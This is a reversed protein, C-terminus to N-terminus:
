ERVFDLCLRLLAQELRGDSFSEPAHRMADKIVKDCSLTMVHAVRPPDPVQQRALMAQTAMAMRKLEVRNIADRDASPMSALTPILGAFVSVVPRVVSLIAEDLTERPPAPAPAAARAPPEQPLRSMAPRPEAAPKPSTAPTRFLTSAPPPAPSPARSATPTPPPASTRSPTSASAPTSSRFLTSALPPAPARSSAPATASARSATSAPPVAPMTRRTTPAQGPQAPSTSRPAPSRQLEARQRRAMAEALIADKNRFCSLLKGLSVGARSAIRISTIAEPGQEVLLQEAAQILAEMLAPHEVEPQAGGPTTLKPRIVAAM